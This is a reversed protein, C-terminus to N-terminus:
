PQSFSIAKALYPPVVVDAPNLGSRVGSGEAYPRHPDRHGLWFCFPKGAPVGALFTAFDPYSPGAPNRTRGAARSGPLTTGPLLPLPQGWAM